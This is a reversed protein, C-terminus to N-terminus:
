MVVKGIRIHSLSVLRIRAAYLLHAREWPVHKGISAKHKIGEELTFLNLDWNVQLERRVM